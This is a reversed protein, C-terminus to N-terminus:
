LSRPVPASRDESALQSLLPGGSVLIGLVVDPYLYFGAELPPLDTDDFLVGELDIQLADADMPPVGGDLHSQIRRLWDGIRDLARADLATALVPPPPGDIMFDEWELLDFLFQGGKYLPLRSLSELLARAREPSALRFAVGRRALTCLLARLWENGRRIATLARRDEPTLADADAPLPPKTM